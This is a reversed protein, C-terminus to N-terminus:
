GAKYVRLKTTTSVDGNLRYRIKSQAQQIRLYQYTGYQFISATNTANVSGARNIRIDSGDRWLQFREGGSGVIIWIATGETTPLEQFLGVWNASRRNGATERAQITYFEGSVADTVLTKFDPNGNEDPIATVTNEKTIPAGAIQMKQIYNSSPIDSFKLPGINIIDYNSSEEILQIWVWDDDTYTDNSIDTWTQAVPPNTIEAVESIAPPITLTHATDDETRNGLVIAKIIDYLNAQTAAEGYVEQMVAHTVALFETQTTDTAIAFLTEAARVQAASARPRDKFEGSM